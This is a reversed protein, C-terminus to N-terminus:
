CIFPINPTILEIINKVSKEKLVERNGYQKYHYADTQHISLSELSKSIRVIQCDIEIASVLIGGSIPCLTIDLHGKGYDCVHLSLNALSIQSYIHVEIPM